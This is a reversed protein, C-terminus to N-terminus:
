PTEGTLTLEEAELQVRRIARDFQGAAQPDGPAATLAALCDTLIRAAKLAPHEEAAADEPAALLRMPAVGFVSAFAILNDVGVRREGRGMRSLSVQGIPHGVEALKAALADYSMSRAKRLQDVNAIFNQGAAGPPNRQPGTVAVDPVKPATV